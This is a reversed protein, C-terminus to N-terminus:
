ESSASKKVKKRKLQNYKIRCEHCSVYGFEAKRKCCVICVGRARCEERTKQRYANFNRRCEPCFRHEPEPNPKRCRVCLGSEILKKYQERATM